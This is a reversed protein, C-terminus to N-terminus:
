DELWFDRPVWGNHENVKGDRERWDHFKGATINLWDIFRRAGIKTKEAWRRVFDM